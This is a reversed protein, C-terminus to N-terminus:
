STPQSPEDFYSKAVSFEEHRLAPTRKALRPAAELLTKTHSQKPCKLVQSEQGFEVLRGKHMVGIEDCIYHAIALNHTIFLISIGTKAQISKVLNLIVAQVSTDLSSTIEDAILLTPAAALARAIAVRQRQGGSLRDPTVYAVHPDLEVQRLFRSVADHTRRKLFFLSIENSFAEAISEGVTRRPDLAATADQFVLQVSRRATARAARPGGHVDIDNVRIKGHDPKVIGAIARAVTSKGSGSEGVLGLVRGPAIQFTVGSVATIDGYFVSLEVVSLVPRAVDIIRTDANVRTVIHDKGSRPEAAQAPHRM